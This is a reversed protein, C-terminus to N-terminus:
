GLAAHTNRILTETTSWDICADTISVGYALKEIPQPFKQNGANLNSELMLGMINGSQSSTNAKIQDLVANFVKPQNDANKGSNAHSCDIMLTPRLGAEKLQQHAAAVSAADYNPGRSGGRLILHCNPNGKTSISSTCGNRDIGIFTQSQGAAHVANVAAQINGDTTNKFGLPMSLGSAMQRHTQSESTRAGITSWSILDSIYQPTIPDLLETATPLGLDIVDRLFRRATALGEGIDCTGDLRPDMILGKWGTTTRPKEFYVRMVLLLRDAVESSLDALKKAYERGADIDHISCPGVIILRRTDHGFIIHHIATRSRAVFSAQEHSKPIEKLLEEPTPLPVTATIHIDSVKQM